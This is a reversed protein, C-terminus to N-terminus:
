DQSSRPIVAHKQRAVDAWLETEWQRRKATEPSAHGSKTFGNALAAHTMPSKDPQSLRPKMPKALGQGANYLQSAACARCHPQHADETDLICIGKCAPCCSVLVSVVVVKQTNAASNPRDLHSARGAIPHDSAASM